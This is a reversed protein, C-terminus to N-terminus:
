SCTNIIINYLKLIKLVHVLGLCSFICNIGLDNLVYIWITKKMVNRRKAKREGLGRAKGRVQTTM